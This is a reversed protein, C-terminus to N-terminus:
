ALKDFFDGDPDIQSPSPPSYSRWTKLGTWDEIPLEPIRHCEKKNNTVLTIQLSQAHAPSEFLPAWPNQPSLLIVANGMKKIFVKEGKFRFAKPLRVAQSQGNQFLKAVQM